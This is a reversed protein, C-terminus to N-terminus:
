RRARKPKVLTRVWVQSAWEAYRENSWGREKVLRHWLVGDTFAWIVDRCEEESVALQGTKAAERAMVSLGALRQRGVEGLMEAAAADTGAAGQLALMFPAIRVMTKTSFAAHMVFRKALDPENRIAMVEPREHFPVEEDDGGITIDWVRHLLTPKNRFSAYVSEVSVGAAEAVDTMTTRGYGREVFLDHAARIIALKADRAQAQRRSADYKRVRKVVAAM